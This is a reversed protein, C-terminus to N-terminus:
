KSAENLLMDVRAIVARARAVAAPVSVDEIAALDTPVGAQSPPQRVQDAVAMAADLFEADQPELKARDISKLVDLGAEYDQTVILVAAEYIRSRTHEVSGESTLAVAQRAALRALAVRGGIVAQHAILLYAQRRVDRNLDSLMTELKALQQPDHGYRDGAVEMAFQARFGGAYVSNPFRRMYLSALANYADMNGADAAAAAQRRLAAEEVLTGPALLRAEELRAIAATADKRALLVSQVLAVHSGLNPELKRSDIEALLERADADRGESYALAGNLLKADVGPLSPRSFIFKLVRPEGGSLAYIVAARVNVPNSWVAPDAALMQEAIQASLRRQQSHAAADGQVARDQLQRLSRVLEFPQQEAEVSHAPQSVATALACGLALVSLARKM